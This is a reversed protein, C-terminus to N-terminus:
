KWPVEPSRYFSVGMATLRPGHGALRVKYEEFRRGAASWGIEAYGALRPFAMYELDARTRLTETWLPAEVGLIDSESVGSLWTAPEWSYGDSVEIYGAWNQGLATRANYKMDLYARSAPSLIVKAGQAAALAAGKGVWQQVITTSSLHAQGIEEWGVLQKGQAEVIPRLRDVFAIYDASSLTSPEDGGIHIYPGPTLAAIEGIVDRAFAYTTESTTCLSSFGVNMGTYLGPAVGSCNLAPYSALAANTHGPMDIEPVVTMYRSQAYTVIQAYDARTYYGGPGGGVETSGGYAALRPRSDIAIRWGQDDTLHLHLRDIKYYALLDIYRRVDAVSFFHRAVDLMAGRWSFRPTDRITGAPMTWPGPQSAAEIAPPLLQRITQVGRFLGAPRAAQLSVLDPTITLVYGEEGLSADGGVTTLHINGNALRGTAASVQVGYGTAGNLRDALYQGIATLEASEPDVYIGAGAVLRFMGDAPVASQPKPIVNAIPLVSPAVPQLHGRGGGCSCWAVAGVVALAGLAYRLTV